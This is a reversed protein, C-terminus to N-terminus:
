SLCSRSSDFLAARRDQGLSEGEVNQPVSRRRALSLNANLANGKKGSRKKQEKLIEMLEREIAEGEPDKSTFRKWFWHVRFVESVKM